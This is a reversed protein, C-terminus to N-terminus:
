RLGPLLAVSSGARWTACRLRAYHPAFHSDHDHWLTSRLDDDGETAALLYEFAENALFGGWNYSFGAGTLLLHYM